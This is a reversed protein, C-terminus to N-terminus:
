GAEMRKGTMRYVQKLVAVVAEYYKEPIEDGIEVESYLARALPRNEIVPVESEQAMERIRLAINDAGKATVTPAAMQMRKYEMAVAYHTPNTVVVDANPVNQMQNRSALERMRERLRSKIQPDGEYTKREEKVEQKTMKLQERHQRRQFMYDFISLVLMIVAAEVLITFAMRAVQVFAQMFPVRVLNALMPFEARINFYAIAGIILVKGMSKLLNFGAEASFFSRQFFRGFRPAIKSFDPQIPKWTFLLGVQVMNGLVAAIFAVVGIPVTLRIFYRLFSDLLTQNTAVNVEGAKGLFFAVMSAMTDFLFGSLLGITVITFLLVVAGTVDQSKAVKGEERSERLKHETPEETRGEDEAAFWQLHMRDLQLLFDASM